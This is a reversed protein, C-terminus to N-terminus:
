TAAPPHDLLLMNIRGIQIQCEDLKTQALAIREANDVRHALQLVSQWGVRVRHWGGLTRQLSKRTNAPMRQLRRRDM